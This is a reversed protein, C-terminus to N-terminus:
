RKRRDILWILAALAVGAAFGYLMWLIPEGRGVGYLVGVVPGLFLFIGGAAPTRREQMLPRMASQSPGRWIAAFM